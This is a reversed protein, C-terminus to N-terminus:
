KSVDRLLARSMLVQRAQATHAMYGVRGPKDIVVASSPISQLLMSSSALGLGLLSGKFNSLPFIKAAM